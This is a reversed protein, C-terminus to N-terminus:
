TPLGLLFDSAQEAARIQVKELIQWMIEELAPELGTSDIKILGEGSNMANQKDELLALQQDLLNKQLDFAEQKKTMDEDIADQWEQAELQSLQGPHDEFLEDIKGRTDDIDTGFSDFTDLFNLFDSSELGLNLSYDEPLSEIEEGLKDVEDYAYGTVEFDIAVDTKMGDLAAGLDDAQSATDTAQGGFDGLSLTMDSLPITMQDVAEFIIQVTKELDAM